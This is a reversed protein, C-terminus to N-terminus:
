IDAIEKDARDKEDDRGQGHSWRVAGCLICGDEEELHGWKSCYRQYETEEIWEDSGVYDGLKVQSCPQSSAALETMQMKKEFDWTLTPPYSTM